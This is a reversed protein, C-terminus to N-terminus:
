VSVSLDQMWIPMVDLLWGELIIQLDFLIMVGVAVLVGGAIPKAKDAFRRLGAQRRLIAERTGYALVLMVTMIGLAFAVMIAGAWALDQRQSALAVAGGLTPGICPSWVAGLLVGALFQGRLGAPDSDDLRVNASASLGGAATAFATNFRPVLLVIGFAIMVVAATRSTTREDIGFAPGVASLALGLTVFTVGMGCALAVPGYRDQQIASVLVIPVIPLVCPNILTLIGALYGLILDM